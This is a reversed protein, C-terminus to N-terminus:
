RKPFILGAQGAHGRRDHRRGRGSPGARHPFLAANQVAPVQAGPRAGRGAPLFRGQERRRGARHGRSRPLAIITYCAKALYDVYTTFVKMAANDLERAADFVIKATLKEPDGGVMEMMMSEPHQQLIQKGMRIIATASCYRELCGENGCTCPVGGIDMPIHGIESGVGHFGSWPRGNIVIGGGVGTGLTLFVSSSTGKSVGAVSEAFGAVTADNDIFVPKNIYKQLESRLPVDKWGMNTCFIVNGTKADAIGPIGIGVSHVDDVTLKAEDLVKLACHGMDAIIEQYPRGVLTPTEGQHILQGEENVLGIKIGTGGVDIGIYVM